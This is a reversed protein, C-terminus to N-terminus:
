SRQQGREQEGGTKAGADSKRRSWYERLMKKTRAIENVDQSEIKYDGPPVEKWIECLIQFALRGVRVVKMQSNTKGSFGVIRTMRDDGVADILVPVADDGFEVLMAKPSKFGNQFNTPKGEENSTQERLGHVLESASITNRTKSISFQQDEKVMRKLVNLHEITLQREPRGLPLKQVVWELRGAIESRSISRNSLMATIRDNFTIGLEVVMEDKLQDSLGNFDRKTLISREALKIALDGHGADLCFRALVFDLTSSTLSMGPLLSKNPGVLEYGLEWCFKQSSLKKHIEANGISENVFQRFDVKDISPSYTPLEHRSIQVYRLDTTFISLRNQIEAVVFGYYTLNEDSDHDKRFSIKVFPLDKTNPYGLTDFWTKADQFEPLIKREQASMNHQLGLLILLFVCVGISANVRNM